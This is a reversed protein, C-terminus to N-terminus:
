AATKVPEERNQRLRLKKWWMYYGTIAQIVLMLSSLSVLIKTPYGFMDGTHTARNLIIARTGTAVARSDQFGVVKGSFQDVNAWSRGGPTLDEPYRLAVLYSAKPGGPVSIAMAQTGPLAALASQLAQDPTIPAAGNQPVSPINKAVKQTGTRQHLYTEIDDDFHIAIGTVGLVLLFAASYIGATNHLDFHIRRANASWNISARKVPWWLYIGSLVLFLLVATAAAVIDAGVKASDRNSTLLLRLHLQHIKSLVTAPDRDGIIAGTYPNIFVARPGKVTFQAADTPRQPLRISGIRQGPYAKQAAKLLETVPMPAGQPDVHFLGRHTVRDIDEEFAMISGTVGIVVVFLGAILAGYLHLNFILKRM